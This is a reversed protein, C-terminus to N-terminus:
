QGQVDTSLGPMTCRNKICNEQQTNDPGGCHIHNTLISLKQVSAETSIIIIFIIMTVFYKTLITNAVNHNTVPAAQWLLYKYTLLLKKNTDTTTTSTTTM